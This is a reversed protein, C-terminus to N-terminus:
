TEARELPFELALTAGDGAASDVTLAAGHADAIARVIALGLGWGPRTTDLRVGPELIREHDEPPIGRGTDSVSLVLRGDDVHARVVIEDEGGAHEAANTVLNDLAQRIRAPDVEVVPLGPEVIARVNVGRLRATDVVELVVSGLHVRELHLSTVAADDVLREIGRCAALALSVLSQREDFTLREDRYAEAISVLAAVSSRVEHVLIALRERDALATVGLSQRATRAGV